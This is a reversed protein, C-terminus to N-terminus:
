GAPAYDVEAADSGKKGAGQRLRRLYDAAKDRSPEWHCAPDLAGQAKGQSRAAHAFGTAEGEARGSDAAFPQATAVVRGGAGEDVAMCVAFGPAALAPAPVTLLLLAAFFPPRRTM